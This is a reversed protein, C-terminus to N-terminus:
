RCPACACCASCSARSSTATAPATGRGPAHASRPLQAAARRLDQPPLPLEHAQHLLLVRGDGHAPVHERRLVAPARLPPVAGGQDPAPHARPRLRRRVGGGQRAERAGRDARRRAAALAAPGPGGRRRLHVAGPGPRSAPPRAEQGGGADAPARAPGAQAAVRHRLHAAADTQARRRALLRRRREDAHLRGLPDERHARRAPRPLPGRLREPRYTSLVPEAGNEQEQGYEDAGGALIADILELKYPQDAFQTRADEASLERYEFPHRQGIIQRMRREIQEIDEPTFSRPRGDEGPGLDFDYYFGTDIPPGIGMKAQPYREVVAQAMVHALSHRVRYLRQQEAENAM